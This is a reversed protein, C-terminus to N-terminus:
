PRLLQDRREQQAKAFVMILIITKILRQGAKFLQNGSIAFAVAGSLRNEQDADAAVLPRMIWVMSPQRHFASHQRDLCRISWARKDKYAERFKLLGSRDHNGPSTM